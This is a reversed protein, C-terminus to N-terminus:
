YIGNRIALDVCHDTAGQVSQVVFLVWADFVVLLAFEPDVEVLVPEEGIVPPFVFAFEWDTTAPWGAM